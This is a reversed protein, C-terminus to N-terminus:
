VTSLEISQEESWPMRGVFPLFSSRSHIHEGVADFDPAAENRRGGRRKTGGGEGEGRVSGGEM